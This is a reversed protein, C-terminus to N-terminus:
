THNFALISHFILIHDTQKQRRRISSIHFFEECCPIQSPRFLCFASSFSSNTILHTEQGGEMKPRHRGPCSYKTRTGLLSPVEPNLMGSVSHKILPFVLSPSSGAICECSNLPLIAIRKGKILIFENCFAAGTIQSEKSLKRTQTTADSCRPQRLLEDEGSETASPHQERLM